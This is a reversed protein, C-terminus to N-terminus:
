PRGLQQSRGSRDLRPIGEEARCKAVRWSAHTDRRNGPYGREFGEWLGKCCRIHFVYCSREKKRHRHKSFIPRTERTLGSSALVSTSGLARVLCACTAHAMAVRRRSSRSFGLMVRTRGRVQGLSKGAASHAPTPGPSTSHARSRTSPACVPNSLRLPRM